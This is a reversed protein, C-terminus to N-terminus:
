KNRTTNILSKLESIFQQANNVNPLEINGFNYNIVDSSGNNINSVVRPKSLSSLLNKMQANNLVYEPRNPSGHLMALGTYDVIGGESYGPLKLTNYNSANTSSMNDVKDIEALIANYKNKFNELVDLRQELIQKEWEAGILQKAKLADQANEYIDAIDSWESKYDKLDNILQNWYEDEEEKKKNLEEIQKETEELNKQLEYYANSFDEVVQPDLQSVMETWNEGLLLDALNRNKENDFKDLVKDWSNIYNQLSEIQEELSNITANKQDEIEKTTANQLLDEYTQKADRIAEADTTWVFGLGEKYWFETVKVKYTVSWKNTAILDNFRIRCNWKLIITATWVM